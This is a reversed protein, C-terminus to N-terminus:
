LTRKGTCEIDGKVKSAVAIQKVASSAGALAARNALTPSLAEKLTIFARSRAFTVSGRVPSPTLVLAEV